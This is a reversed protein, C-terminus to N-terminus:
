LSLLLKKKANDDKQESYVGGGLNFMNIGKSLSVEALKELTMRESTQFLQLIEIGFASAIALGTTYLKINQINNNDSGIIANAFPIVPVLLSFSSKDYITFIETNNM